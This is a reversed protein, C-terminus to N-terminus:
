KNVLKVADQIISLNKLGLVDMKLMGVYEIVSGDYQTVLLGTNKDRKVPIYDSLPGPAIIIAAAHISTHRFKGELKESIALVKGELSDKKSLHRKLLPEEEIAGRLTIGLKDPVLKALADTKNLPLGLVRGVDRISSKAGLASFTTVHAVQEEGYRRALYDAVREPHDFDIDIDPMSVREPNLFREFLLGYRLPDVDTIGLAYAVVSGAVSGRGPGVSVGMEKAAKVMDQVILFYGSFGMQIIIRLEHHLREEIEKSLNGYRKQASSLTLSRLYEGESGSGDPIKFFPMLLERQLTPTNIKEVIELTNEVAHPVDSFCEYMEKPSKLFFENKDFRMRNPDHFGKGTQLCLMIDQAESDEREIYHVDNTAIPTVGYKKAWRLLVQNCKDQDEIGHRQLEIYYDEGFIELWSHFIEEAVEEGEDLIARPVEAALCGTTAILGEAYKEITKRDVRPKYYYGETFALSCLKILNKYGQENKVLLLQHYRRRDARDHMDKALYCECGIIPKIGEKLAAKVFHPVGYMNGHDTIALSDMGLLKTQMMLDKIDAIGDLLSYSTHTHLHCFRSGM